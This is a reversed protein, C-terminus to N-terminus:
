LTWPLGEDVDQKGHVHECYPTKKVVGLNSWELCVHCWVHVSAAANAPFLRRMADVFLCHFVGGGSTWLLCDGNVMGSCCPM